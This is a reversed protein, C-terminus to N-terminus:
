QKQPVPATTPRAAPMLAMRVTGDPHYEPVFLTPEPDNTGRHSARGVMVGVTKLRSRQYHTVSYLAVQERFAALAKPELAAHADDFVAVVMYTTDIVAVMAQTVHFERQLDQQLQLQLKPLM